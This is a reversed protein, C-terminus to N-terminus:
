GDAGFRAAIVEVHDAVTQVNILVRANL